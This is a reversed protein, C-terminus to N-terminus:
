VTYEELVKLMDVLAQNYACAEKYEISEKSGEGITSVYKIMQHSRNRIKIFEDRTM